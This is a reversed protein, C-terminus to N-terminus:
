SELIEIEIRPAKRDIYFADSFGEINAWGDNPICGRQVLADQFIKHFYGSINDKDKKRNPCYFSYRIYIRKDTHWRPLQLAIRNQDRKKMENGGSWNGHRSRNAAIFENLGPFEGQIIFRTTKVDTSLCNKM